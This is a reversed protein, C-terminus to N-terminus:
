KELQRLAQFTWPSFRPLFQNSILRQIDFSILFGESSDKKFIQVQYSAPSIGYMTVMRHAMKYVQLGVM